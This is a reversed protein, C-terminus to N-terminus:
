RMKGGTDRSPWVPDFLGRSNAARLRTERTGGRDKRETGTINLNFPKVPIDKSSNADASLLFGGM